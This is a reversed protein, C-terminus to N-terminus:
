ECREESDDEDGSYAMLVGVPTYYTGTERGATAHLRCVAMAEDIRWQPWWSPVIFVVPPEHYVSYVNRLWFYLRRMADM